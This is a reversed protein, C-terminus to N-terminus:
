GENFRFSHIITILSIQQYSSKLIIDPSLINPNFGDRTWYMTDTLHLLGVFFAM